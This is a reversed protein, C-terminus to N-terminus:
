SSSVIHIKLCEIMDEDNFIESVGMLRKIKEFQSPSPVAGKEMLFLLLEFVGGARNGLAIGIAKNGDDFPYRKIVSVGYSKILESVKKMDHKIIADYFDKENQAAIKAGKKM